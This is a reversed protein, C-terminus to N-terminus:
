VADAPTGGIDNWGTITANAEAGAPTALEGTVEFGVSMKGNFASMAETLDTMITQTGTRDTFAVELNLTQANGLIGLLRLDATILNGNRSFTMRTSTANGTIRQSNLDFAGAVGELRGTVSRVLEPAGETLTLALHLDRTRQVMPLNVRLTDDEIVQIERRATFLYGPLSEIGDTGVANVRITKGQATMGNCDNRADIWYTRPTFLIPHCFAKEATAVCEEGWIALRYEVPCPCAASRDSFDATVVVAGKDPHPTDFLEDKVCSTLSLAFVATLVSANYLNHRKM